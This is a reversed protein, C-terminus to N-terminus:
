SLKGRQRLHPELDDRIEEACRLCDAVNSGVFHVSSKRAFSGYEVKQRYLELLALVKGHDSKLMHKGHLLQATGGMDHGRDTRADSLELGANMAYEAFRWIHWLAGELLTPDKTLQHQKLLLAAEELGKIRNLWEEEKFPM